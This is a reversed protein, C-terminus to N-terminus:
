SCKGWGWCRANKRSTTVEGDNYRRTRQFRNELGGFVLDGCGPVSLAGCNNKSPPPSNTYTKFFLDAVSERKLLTQLEM